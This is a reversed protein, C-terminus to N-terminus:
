HQRHWLAVLSPDLVNSAHQLHMLSNLWSYSRDLSTSVNPTLIMRVKSCRRLIKSSLKILHCICCLILVPSVKEQSYYIHKMQNAVQSLFCAQLRSQWSRKGQLADSPCFKSASPFLCWYFSSDPSSHWWGPLSCVVFVLLPVLSFCIWYFWFQLTLLLFALHVSQRSSSRFSSLGGFLIWLLLLPNGTKKRTNRGEDNMHNQKKKTEPRQWKDTKNTNKGRRIRQIKLNEWGQTTWVQVTPLLRWFSHHCLLAQHIKSPSIHIIKGIDENAAKAVNIFSTVFTHVICVVHSDPIHFQQQHGAHQNWFSTQCILPFAQINSTTTLKDIYKQIIKIIQTTSKNINSNVRRSTSPTSHFDRWPQPSLTRM